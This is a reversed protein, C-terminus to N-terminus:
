ILLWTSVQYGLYTQETDSSKLDFVYLQSSSADANIGKRGGYLFDIDMLTLRRYYVVFDNMLFRAFGVRKTEHKGIM